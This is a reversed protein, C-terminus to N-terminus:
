YLGDAWSYSISVNWYSYRPKKGYYAATVAKGLTAADDLSVAAFNQLAPWNLNGTSDLAWDLEQRNALLHGGDTTVAAYGNSAPQALDLLDGTSWGGGGVGVFRGNWGSVPLTVYTNITDNWGPHTYQVTVQCVPFPDTSNNPWENTPFSPLEANTLNTSISLIKANALKISRFTHDTCTPKSLVSQFGQFMFAFSIASLNSSLMTM